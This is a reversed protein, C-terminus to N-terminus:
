FPIDDDADEGTAPDFGVDATQPAPAPPVVAARAAANEAERAKANWPMVHSAHLGDNLIFPSLGALLFENFAQATAIVDIAEPDKFSAARAVAANLATQRSGLVIGIPDKKFAGGGGGSVASRTGNTPSSVPVAAPPPSGSTSAAYDVVGHFSKVKPFVKGEANPTRDVDVQVPNGINDIIDKSSKPDFCYIKGRHGDATFQYGSGNKTQEHSTFTQTEISM